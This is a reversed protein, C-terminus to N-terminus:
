VEKNPVTLLVPLGLYKEVSEPDSFTQAMTESVYAFTLGSFICLLIGVVFIFRKNPKVPKAPVAASQIVSINTLKLRNMAEFIRAEEQRDAYTKYNKENIAIERKLNQIKGESMDLTAIEKDLQKLQSKVAASRAMQSNLDGEARFLDMEMSQYVPNGTKVKGAIVEEQEKLFRNVLEVENRANVVLRNNETYKKRLEQEKLQLDLLKTKADTVIRDRDSPTYRASNKSIYGMQSKISSIKKSLESVNNNATKYVTDLDTRQKLLLSRQEELSFVNNTQQFAQLVKESV